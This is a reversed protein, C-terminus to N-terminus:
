NTAQNEHRGRMPPLSNLVVMASLALLRRMFSVARLWAPLKLIDRQIRYPETLLLKKNQHSTDGARFVVLAQDVYQASAGNRVLSATLYYDGCIRFSLDYPVSLLRERRYYTAQHNAPLGHWLTRKAHRPGRYFGVGNEFSVKAGGFIVDPRSESSEIANRVYNLSGADSFCDGANMFVVYEGRALEVGRNMADYIGSDQESVWNSVLPDGNKLYEVLGDKSRGDVVIWEFSPGTLAAISRRTEQFGELDNLVVTIISFEVFSALPELRGVEINNMNPM